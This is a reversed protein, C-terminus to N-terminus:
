RPIPNNYDLEARSYADGNFVNKPVFSYTGGYEPMFRKPDITLHVQLGSPTNDGNFRSAQVGKAVGTNPDFATVVYLM